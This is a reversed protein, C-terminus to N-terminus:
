PLRLRRAVLLLLGIVLATLMLLTLSLASAYGLEGYVFARRYIYLPSTLTAYRPGGDTVLLVPVFTVQLVLIADRAALLAVLPTMLRLTIRRAAYWPSAGEVAAMEYFREPVLGRAALCVVFSEGLQLALMTAIGVRTAWPDTLLGPGPVGLVGAFMAIPGYVPNLLWLWLLAWAADPVVSPLYASVRALGAGRRRRHLLLACGLALALRVPVVLLALLAANGASLWFQADDAARRLNDLGTFEPAEFGYYETFAIATAMCAPLLVLLGLGLLYPVALAIGSRGRM